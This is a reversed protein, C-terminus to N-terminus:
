LMGRQALDQAAFWGEEPSTCCATVRVDPAQVFRASTLVDRLSIGARELNPKM